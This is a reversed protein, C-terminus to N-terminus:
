LKKDLFSQLIVMAAVDDDAKKSGQSLTKAASTSLVENEELVPVTAQERLDHLFVIVKRYQDSQQGELGEPLGVVIKDISEDEVLANIDKFLTESNKIIMFPSALRVEDDGIALGIKSEGYDIGLYRM